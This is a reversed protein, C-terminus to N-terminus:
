GDRGQELDYRRGETAVNWHSISASAYPGLGGTRFCSLESPDGMETGTRAASTEMSVASYSLKERQM